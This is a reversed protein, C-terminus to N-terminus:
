VNRGGREENVIKTIDNEKLSETRGFWPINSAADRKYVGEKM